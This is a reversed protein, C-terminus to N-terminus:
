FYYKGDVLARSKTAQLTVEFNIPIPEASLEHPPTLVIFDPLIDSETLSMESFFLIKYLDAQMSSDLIQLVIDFVSLLSPECDNMDNNPHM